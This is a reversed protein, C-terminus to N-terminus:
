GFYFLEHYARKGEFRAKMMEPILAKRRQQVEQPLQDFVYFPIGKINASKLFGKGCLKSDTDSSKCVIPRIRGHHPAGMRHARDIRIKSKAHPIKHVTECFEFKVKSACSEVTSAVQAYSSPQQSTEMSALVTTSAGAQTDESIGLFVMNDCMSRCKLDTIDDHIDILSKLEGQINHIHENNTNSSKLVEDNKASMFTQSTEIELIKSNAKDILTKNETVKANITDLRSRMLTQQKEISDLQAMKAVICDIKASQDPAFTNPSSMFVPAAPYESIRNM